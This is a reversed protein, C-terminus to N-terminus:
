QIRTSRYRIGGTSRALLNFLWCLLLVAVFCFAISSVWAAILSLSAQPDRTPPTPDFFQLFKVVGVILVSLATFLLSVIGATSIPAIYTLRLELPVHPSPPKAATSM